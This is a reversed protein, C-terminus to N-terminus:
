VCEVGKLKAALKFAEIQAFSLHLEDKMYDVVFGCLERSLNYNREADAEASRLEKRVEYLTDELDEIQQKSDVPM